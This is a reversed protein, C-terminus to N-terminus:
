QGKKLDRKKKIQHYMVRTGNSYAGDREQGRYPCTEVNFLDKWIQELQDFCIDDVLSNSKVYYAYSLVSLVYELAQKFGMETGFITKKM